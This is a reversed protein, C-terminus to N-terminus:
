ADKLLIGIESGVLQATGDKRDGTLADKNQQCIGIRGWVSTVTGSRSM